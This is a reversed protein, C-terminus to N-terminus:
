AAQVLQRRYARYRCCGLGALEQLEIWGSLPQALVAGASNFRVTPSVASAKPSGHAPADASIPM